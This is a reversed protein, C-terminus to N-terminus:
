AFYNTYIFWIAFVLVAIFILKSLRKVLDLAGLFVIIAGGVIAATQILIDQEAFFDVGQQLYGVVTNSISNFFDNDLFGLIFEM